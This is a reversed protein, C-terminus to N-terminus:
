PPFDPSSTQGTIYASGDPGVAMGVATDSGGRRRLLNLLDGQRKPRAQDRYRGYQSRQSCVFEPGSIVLQGVQLFSLTPTPGIKHLHYFWRGNACVRYGSHLCLHGAAQSRAYGIPGRRSVGPVVDGGRRRKPLPRHLRRLSWRLVAYRQSLSGSRDSGCHHSPFPAWTLGEDTSKSGQTYITGPRSRILARPIGPFSRGLSATWSAGADASRYLGSDTSAFISAPSKPDIWIQTANIGTVLTLHNYMDIGQVSTTPIGNNIATWTAGGDLTKFIGFQAVAAYPTTSGKTSDVAVANPRSGTKIAPLLTWTTGGDTSRSLLGASLAYLTQPNGPDATISNAASLLPSLLKQAAGSATDIRTLPSAGAQKQIAKVTPLDLSTTNGAIYLNGQPDTAVGVATSTGSGGVSQYWQLAPVPFSQAVLSSAVLTALFLAAMEGRNSRFQRRLGPYRARTPKRSRLEM